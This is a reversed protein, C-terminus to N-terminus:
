TQVAFKLSALEWLEMLQEKLDTVCVYMCVKTIRNKGVIRM